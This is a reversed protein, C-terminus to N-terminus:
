NQRLRIGFHIKWIRRTAHNRAEIVVIRNSNNKKLELTAAYLGVPGAGIIVIDDEDLSTLHKLMMVKPVKM